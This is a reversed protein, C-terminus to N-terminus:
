ILRIYKGLTKPIILLADAFAKVGYRARGKVEGEYKMLETYCTVEFSGAGPVFANDDKANKIARLGDRIADKTQTLTHKYAGKILISVSLPNKLDEIFTFKNEGQLFIM